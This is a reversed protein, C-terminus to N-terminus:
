GHESFTQAASRGQPSNIFYVAQVEHEARLLSGRKSAAELGAAIDQANLGLDRADFDAQSLARFPGEMHEIRWLAYLTVKLEALSTIQGLLKRFFADPLPSSPESDTFMM